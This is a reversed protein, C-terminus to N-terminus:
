FELGIFAGVTKDTNGRIGLWLDGIVRQSYGLNYDQRLTNFNYEVGLDWRKNNSSAAAQPAPAIIHETEAKTSTDTTTTTTQQSGDKEKVVKTVTVINNHNIQHDVTQIVPPATKRGEYFCGAAVVIITVLYVIIQTKNPLTM